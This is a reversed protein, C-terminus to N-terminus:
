PQLPYELNKNIYNVLKDGEIMHKIEEDNRPLYLSLDKLNKMDKLFVFDESRLPKDLLKIDDNGMQISCLLQEGIEIYVWRREVELRFVSLSSTREFFPAEQIQPPVQNMRLRHGGQHSYVFIM